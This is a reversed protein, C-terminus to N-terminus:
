AIESQEKDKPEFDGKKFKVFWEQFMNVGVANYSYVENIQSILHANKSEVM